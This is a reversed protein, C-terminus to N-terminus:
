KKITTYLKIFTSLFNWDGTLRIKISKINSDAYVWEVAPHDLLIKCAPHRNCINGRMTLKSVATVKSCSLLKLKYQCTFTVYCIQRWHWCGGKNYFFSIVVISNFFFSGGIFLTFTLEKKKRVYIYTEAVQPYYRWTVCYWNLIPKGDMPDHFM